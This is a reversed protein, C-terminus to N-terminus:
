WTATRGSLHAVARLADVCSSSLAAGSAPGTRPFLSAATGSTAYLGELAPRGPEALVRSWEDVLVGGKTGTDGPYVAVAYYPARDLPGLCPNRRHSSDGNSRDFASEGRGFDRDKGKKAQQNFRVASGILGAVDIGASAALDNLSNARVVGSGERRPTTGAPWPGLPYRNRHTSDLVLWSPIARVSRHHEYLHRGVEPMPGAENIFRDGAQDVIMSHPLSREATMRWAAGDFLSILTWWADDMQALAAGHRQAALIGAGLNGAWGSTWTVDTPLPLHDDRLDRNAEFGGSALVVGANALLEVDAGERTIRVGSVRGGTAVLETLPTELWVTAGATVAVSFLQAVLATGGDVVQRAPARRVGRALGAAARVVSRVLGGAPEPGPETRLQGALVGAHRLDFPASAFVRGTSRAGELDPHTDPRNRVVGLRVGADSLASALRPVGAVFAQRREDSSAPTPDGLLAALYASAAEPADGSPGRGGALGPLWLHGTDTATAGGISATSEVVTTEFGARRAALAAVLGSAGAGVVVVDTTLTKM